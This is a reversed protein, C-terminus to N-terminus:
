RGALPRAPVRRKPSLDIFCTKIRSVPKTRDVIPLTIAYVLQCNAGIFVAAMLHRGVPSMFGRAHV